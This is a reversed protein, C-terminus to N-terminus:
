YVYAMEKETVWRAQTLVSKPPKKYQPENVLTGATDITSDTKIGAFSLVVAQTEECTPHLKSQLNQAVARKFRM